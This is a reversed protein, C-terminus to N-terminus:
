ESIGGFGNLHLITFLTLLSIFLRVCEGEEEDSDYGAALVDKKMVRDMIDEKQLVKDMIDERKLGRDMIDEKKLVRNVVDGEEDHEDEGYGLVPNENPYSEPTILTLKM